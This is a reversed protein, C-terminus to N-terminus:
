IWSSPKMLSFGNKKVPQGNFGHGGMSDTQNVMRATRLSEREGGGLARLYSSEIINLINVVLLPYRSKKEMTILGMKEYNIFITDALKNGLDYLIKQIREEKYNSLITNRNLYFSIINMIMKVGYDNLIILSEDTPQIYTTNGKEDLGIVSGELLHQIRELINDLELQWQILNPEQSNGFISGGQGGSFDEYSSEGGYNDGELSDRYDEENFEERQEKM